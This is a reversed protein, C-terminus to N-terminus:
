FGESDWIMITKGMIKHIDMEFAAEMDRIGRVPVVGGILKELYSTIKPQREYLRLLGLFDQRGSRSTGLIRLGKELVMRTHIPVPNESVGLLAITGEPHICDIIQNIAQGAANGGVCEFGHDIRLEKPIQTVLYVEDAFSFDNLKNETVGFVCVRCGPFWSKLLLSTIYGMNGDGWVGITERRSHATRDFRAIAHYCVTVMETFAAVLENMGEPLRVLRDPVTEVYEQMLGNMSSGRFRSSRLYNEAIVEDQECPTNPILIVKEGTQFTGTPDYVVQGAGEHILAMPLKQRLVDEPRKGQYYRQDANCISLYRPRVLIHTGDLSIDEFAAEFQRPRVLQYVTNLM